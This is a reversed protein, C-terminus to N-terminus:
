WVPSRGMSICPVFPSFTFSKWGSWFVMVDSFVFLHLALGAIGIVASSVVRSAVYM